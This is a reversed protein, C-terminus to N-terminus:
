NAVEGGGFVIKRGALDARLGSVTVQLSRVGRERDVGPWLAELAADASVVVPARIALLALL